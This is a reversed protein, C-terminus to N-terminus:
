DDEETYFKITNYKEEILKEKNFEEENKNIRTFRPSFDGDYAWGM